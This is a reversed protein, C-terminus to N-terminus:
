SSSISHQIFLFILLNQHSHHKTIDRFSILSHNIAQNINNFSAVFRLVFFFFNHVFDFNIYEITLTSYCAHMSNVSLCKVIKMFFEKKKEKSKTELM